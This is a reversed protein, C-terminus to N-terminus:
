CGHWCLPQKSTHQRCWKLHVHLKKYTFATYVLRWLHRPKQGRSCGGVPPRDLHKPKVKTSCDHRGDTQPWTCDKFNRDCGMMAGRTLVRGKSKGELWLGQSHPCQVMNSDSGKWPGVPVWCAPATLPTQLSRLQGAHSNSSTSTKKLTFKASSHVAPLAIRGRRFLTVKQPKYSCGHNM